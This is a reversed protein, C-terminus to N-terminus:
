RPRTLGHALALAMFSGGLVMVWALLEAYLYM